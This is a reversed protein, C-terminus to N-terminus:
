RTAGNNARASTKVFNLNEFDLTTFASVNQPYTAGGVIEHSFKMCYTKDGEPDIAAGAFFYGAKVSATAPYNTAGTLHCRLNSRNTNNVVTKYNGLEFLNNENVYHGTLSTPYIYANNPNAYVNIFTNDKMTFNTVSATYKFSKDDNQAPDAYFLNFGSVDTSSFFINNVFEVNTFNARATVIRHNSAAIHFDSNHIKFENVSRTAENYFVQGKGNTSIYCNDILVSKATVNNANAKFHPNATYDNFHINKVAINSNGYLITNGLTIKTRKSFSNGIVVLTSFGKARNISVDTLTSEVFYLGDAEIVTGPETVHTATGKYTSKNYAKGAILIDYGLEWVDYPTLETAGDDITQLHKVVGRSNDTFLQKTSTRKKISGDKYEIYVTIGENFKSPRTVFYYDTKNKFGGDPMTVTIQTSAADYYTHAGSQDGPTVVGRAAVTVDEIVKEDNVIKSNLGQFRVAKVNAADKLQFGIVTCLNVFTFKGDVAPGSVAVFAKPDFTGPTAKQVAPINVLLGTKSGKTVFASGDVANVAEAPYVAYYEESSKQWGTFTAKNGDINQATFTEFTGEKSIVSIQDDAQWSLTGVGDTRDYVVKSTQDSEAEFTMEILDSNVKGTEPTYEKTCAATAMAAVASLIFYKKIM